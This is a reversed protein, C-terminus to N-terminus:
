QKFAEALRDLAAAAEVGRGQLKEHTTKKVVVGYTKTEVGDPYKKPKTRRKEPISNTM